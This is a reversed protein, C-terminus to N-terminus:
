RGTDSIVLVARSTVRERKRRGRRGNRGGVGGDVKADVDELIKTICNGANRKRAQEDALSYYYRTVLGDDSIVPHAMADPGIAMEMKDMADQMSDTVM